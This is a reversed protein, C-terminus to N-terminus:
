GCPVSLGGPNTPPMAAEEGCQKYPREPQAGGRCSQCTPPVDGSTTGMHRPPIDLQPKKAADSSLANTCHPATELVTVSVNKALLSIAFLM